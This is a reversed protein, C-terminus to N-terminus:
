VALAPAQLTQWREVQQVVSETSQEMWRETALASAELLVRPVM